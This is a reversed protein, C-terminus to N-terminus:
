WWDAIARVSAEPRKAWSFHDAQLTAREAQGDKTAAVFDSASLVCKEIDAAIFKDLVASVAAEPAFADDTYRLSLLKGAFNQFLPDLDHGLGAAHYINHKALHRWDEMVGRAEGGGFGTLKGNYYGFIVNMIPILHYLLGIQFRAKGRYAQAWPSGCAPLILRSVKTPNLACYSAAMHGGLSHGMLAVEDGFEAKVWNLVAPIDQVLWELFGWNNQKSARLASRGYGRQEFLVANFGHQNLAKAFQKYFSARIGLAPLIVITRDSEPAPLVAIPQQYAESAKRLIPAPQPQTPILRWDLSM